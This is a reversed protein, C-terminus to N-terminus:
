SEKSTVLQQEQNKRLGEVALFKKIALHEEKKDPSRGLRDSIVIDGGPLRVVDDGALLQGDSLPNLTSYQITKGDLFTVCSATARKAVDPHRPDPDPAGATGEFPTYVGGVFRGGSQIENGEGPLRSM